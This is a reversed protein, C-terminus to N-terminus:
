VYHEFLIPLWLVALDFAKLTRLPLSVLDIESIDGPEPLQM